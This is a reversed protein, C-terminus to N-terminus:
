GNEESVKVVKTFVCGNKLNVVLEDDVHVNKVDSIVQDQCKVIAYGRKLTNMPNLVSLKEIMKELNQKKFQYLIEPNTLVYSNEIQFLRTKYNTLYISMEKNLRQNINKFNERKQYYLMQPNNLIYSNTSQFLRVRYKELINGIVLNLRDLLMDLKQEKVEYINSPKKLVYSEKIQLLRTKRVEIEQMMARYSRSRAKELYEFVTQIDVVALEAAATPTPARLDAVFDAITFDVEHGVASIVPVRSHYIARAVVEENFPWLDEISGGGRGVILTDIDYTNAIEIKRAIDEAAEKGQVLAPFLITEVIPYRRKITTLIDRIAAGTSATVIGIKKPMRLIKRKRTQDFLGEQELKKKLQEYAIYLNGVGDEIMDSVYIQYGGTAEYVTVKGTVMVKMGDMPIFKCKAVSSAFMVANIRSGEDKLTFYYHGRTHAKFNSIEGKLYVTTLNVDQDFKYKLYRSLQTITLYNEKM